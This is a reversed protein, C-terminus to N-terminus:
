LDGQCVTKFNHDFFSFFDNTGPLEGVGQTVVLVVGNIRRALEDATSKPFYTPMLIVRVQHERAYQELFKFHKATPPIGPKPEIFEESVLGLFDAFYAIDAHYSFVEKGKVESCTNKWRALNSELEKLFVDSRDKYFQANHPDLERLKGLINSAFIRANEPNMQIHPNGQGHIDGHARTLGGEPVELLKVGISVDMNRRGGRFLEPKGAAELLPDSWAELGLGNHVYLDAKRVKRVDTPKPQIFHVNYKPSAIASVEVKDGGIKRVIDAFITQTAVVQIKEQACVTLPLFLILVAM